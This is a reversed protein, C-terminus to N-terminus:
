RIFNALFPLTKSLFFLLFNVGLWLGFVMIFYKTSSKAKFMKAFGVSIVAYFWISFPDLKALVFGGIDTKEIGMFDAVSTGAMLKNLALAAIVMVILQLAIIYYPLGYAVMANSYNGDGKLGFKSTLYFVGAIIFFIVFTFVVIAIISFMIGLGSNEMFQRTQEIREDAQSQSLDGKAVAEDLQKEIATMQKEIMSYKIADNSMMVVQSLAAVIIMIILPIIWDATKAPFKSISSFTEAPETFVGVLKDTHSLEFEEEDVSEDEVSEQDKIEEM